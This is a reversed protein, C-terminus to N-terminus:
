QTYHFIISVILGIVATVSSIAAVLLVARNSRALRLTEVEAELRKRHWEEHDDQEKHLEVLGQRLPALQTTVYAVMSRYSVPSQGPTM